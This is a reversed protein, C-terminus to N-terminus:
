VRLGITHELYMKSIDASQEPTREVGPREGDLEIIGWGQFHISRLAAFIAKFDVRGEGLETFQYGSKNVSNKVDKLHLFLLRDAHKHIAAAPDGGGQLYHGTDLELKVYKPDSAALIAEVAEPAQGISDMHNHFGLPIGYDAVRKGIETLMKGEYEYDAQTYNQRKDFSGIVQLYKGGAEKLYQSHKVHQDILDERLAPDLQLNGSSLAVFTLNHKALLDRLAHADPFEQVAAARLQIGPYGAASIDEIAVNDHGGWTISAYGIRMKLDDPAAHPVLFSRRHEEGTTPGRMAAAAPSIRAAVGAAALTMLFDRRSACM